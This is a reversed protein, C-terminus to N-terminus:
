ASLNQTNTNSSLQILIFSMKDINIRSNDTGEPLNQNGVLFKIAPNDAGEFCTCIHKIKILVGFYLSFIKNLYTAFDLVINKMM